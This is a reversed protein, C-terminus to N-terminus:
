FFFFFFIQPQIIHVCVGAHAHVCVFFVESSKFNFLCNYFHITKNINYLINVYLYCIYVQFVTITFHVVLM